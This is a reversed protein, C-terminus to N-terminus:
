ANKEIFQNYANLLHTLENFVYGNKRRMFKPAMAVHNLISQNAELYERLGDAGNIRCTKDNIYKAKVIVFTESHTGFILLGNSHSESVNEKSEKVKSKKVKSEKVKSQTNETDSVGNRDRELKSLLPNLRNELSKCSLESNECQFLDIAVCYDIVSKLKDPEFDFDGSILELGLLNINCVFFDQDTMYELMMCYIGYGEMGFKRRLAKIRADNRMDADHPFYDANNKIPRAM